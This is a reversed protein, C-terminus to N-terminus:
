SPLKSTYLSRVKSLSESRYGAWVKVHELREDAMEALGYSSIRGEVASAFRETLTAVVQDAETRDSSVLHFQLRARTAPTATVLTSNVLALLGTM